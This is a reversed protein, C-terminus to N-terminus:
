PNRWARGDRELMRAAESPGWTGAPYRGLIVAENRWTELIPDVIRWAQEVEDSRIFLTPDGMLADHLLREYANPPDEAFGDRYRFGMAVSRLDFSAGPVKAGFWLSVGEDPGIRLVLTNPRLEDVQAAAFPLHPAPRFHLSVETVEAAMRKGTRVYVPVGAWRWNDVMLRIAVYTETQSRPDVDAEERYGPVEEGFVVGSEYRARVVSDAVDDSSLVDVARLAKVKEDRIGEADMTVPPEMLILSLLQMVHNQVMDRLAGAQEYFAGRHGIGISEAVTIQIHDVYRRNWVPEFIANAFRLALLNQVTEKALFHDIRYVQGEDFAEDVERQLAAASELDHGFPKEIVIRSEAARNPHARNPHNLGQESLARIIPGFAAPPTALYYVRNLARSDRTGAHEGDLEDLLAGLRACTAPETLDGRLYRFGKAVQHWDGRGSPDGVQDMRDCFEEDSLDTRGIGIVVFDPGLEDRHSLAALAPMLMRSTLDGTAGFIVLVTPPTRRAAVESAGSACGTASNVTM